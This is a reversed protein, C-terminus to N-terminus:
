RRPYEYLLRREVRTPDLRREAITWTEEYLRLGVFRAAPVDDRSPWARPHLMFSPAALPGLLRGSRGIDFGGRAARRTEEARDLLYAAVRDQGDLPLHHFRFTIWPTLEDLGLPQWARYDVRHEAGAEDVALLTQRDRVPGPTLAKIPWASFPWLDRQTLGAGFSLVLVYLLYFSTATKRREPDDHRPVALLLGLLVFGLFAAAAFGHLLWSHGGTM